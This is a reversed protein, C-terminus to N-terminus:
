LAADTPGFYFLINPKDSLTFQGGYLSELANTILATSLGFM